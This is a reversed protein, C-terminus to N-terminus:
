SHRSCQMMMQIVPILVAMTHERSIVLIVTFWDKKLQKNGGQTEESKPFTARIRLSRVPCHQMAQRFSEMLERNSSVTIKDGDDDIYIVKIKETIEAVQGKFTFDSAIATLKKCLEFYLQIFGM